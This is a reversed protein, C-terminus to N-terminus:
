VRVWVNSKLKGDIIEQACSTIFSTIVRVEDEELAYVVLLHKGDIKKFVVFAASGLDYFSLSPNSVADLIAEESIGREDARRKGHKTFKM